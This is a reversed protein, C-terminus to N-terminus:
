PRDIIEALWHAFKEPTMAGVRMGYRALKEATARDFDPSGEDSLAALGLLTMRSEAMRKVVSMLVRESAGECFDSVLVLVTRHPNMVQKGCYSLAKGINAGGGLQVTMLLEVPDNAHHTLDVVDTDFVVLRVNVGPLGSLIGAMVASYIVSSAMSGSQDICLVVDWPLQKKIRSNFYLNKVVLSGSEPDYNRLNKVITQRWDFNNAVKLNSNRFRNRRGSFTNEVVPRLRQMIDDIIKRIIVRLQELVPASMKGKLMLLSALMRENPEISKLTEPDTLIENLEYRELADKRIVECVTDPFLAPLMKLWDLAKLASPDLGGQKGPEALVTGRKAYERNYLYDLAAQRNFDAANMQSGPMAKDALRGLILRWRREIENM